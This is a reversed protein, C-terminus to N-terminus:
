NKSAAPKFEAHKQQAAKKPSFISRRIKGRPILEQTKQEEEIKKRREREAREREEEQKKKMEEQKKIEIEKEEGQKVLQFLRNKLANERQKDQQEYKEKLKEFNLPTHSDKSIKKEREQLDDQGNNLGVSKELLKLPSFTQALSKGTKKATSTGLEVLKEFTDEFFGPKTM